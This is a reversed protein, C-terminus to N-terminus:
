SWSYLRPKTWALPAGLGRLVELGREWHRGVSAVGHSDDGPVVAIGLALAQRLVPLSPYQEAGKDFGRLNCDLILGEQGMFELNRRVLAALRPAALRSAYAPDFIRVLDFHGVVAPRLARLLAYQAEFYEEYLADIGGCAEAAQRWSAADYDICIGRVHHVSGVLYDPRLRAVLENVYELSGAYAETEFATFIELKGRYRAQLERCHAFYDEFRRQLFGAELGAKEEDPYRREASPPPMHETIGVWAFGQAVYAEIVQELSDRAHHCYQGSHGGHVSVKLVADEVNLAM